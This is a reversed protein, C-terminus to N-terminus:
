EPHQEDLGQSVPTQPSSLSLLGVVAFADFLRLVVMLADREVLVGDLDEAAVLEVDAIVDAPEILDIDVEVDREEVVEVSEAVEVDAVVGEDVM